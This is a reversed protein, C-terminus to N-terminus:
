DRIYYIGGPLMRNDWMRLLEKQHQEIWEKALATQKNPLSGVTVRLSRVAIRASHEAYYVHVHPAEHENRTYMLIKM